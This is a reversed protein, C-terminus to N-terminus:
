AKNDAPISMDRNLLDLLESCYGSATQIVAQPLFNERTHGLSTRVKALLEFRGGWYSKDRKLVPEFLPWDCTILSWLDMPYTYALIPRDEALGYSTHERARLEAARELVTNAKPFAEQLRACWDEGFQCLYRQQVMERLGSEVQRWADHLPIDRAIMELYGQFHRSWGVLCGGEGNAPRLIGYGLLRSQGEISPELLPGVAVEVLVRFLGDEGLLARLREYHQYMDCRSAALGTAVSLADWGRCLIMEALYPHGGTLEWLMGRDEETPVWHPSCRDWMGALGSEPLPQIFRMECVGDLNSGGEIQREIQFLTRRSIFICTFGTDCQFDILERLQQIFVQADSFRGVADFEDLVLVTEIGARRLNRLHARLLRFIDYLGTRGGSAEGGTQELIDGFVDALSSVASLTIWLHDRSNGFAHNIANRVLSTKGIRHEGAVSISGACGKLRSVLWELERNRGIFRKGTVVRGYGAFPNNM